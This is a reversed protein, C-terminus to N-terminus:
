RYRAISLRHGIPRDRYISRFDYYDRVATKVPFEGTLRANYTYATRQANTVTVPVTCNM